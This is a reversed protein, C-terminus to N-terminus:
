ITAKGFQAQDVINNDPDITLAYEIHFVITFGNELMVHITRSNAPVFYATGSVPVHGIRDLETRATKVMEEIQANM